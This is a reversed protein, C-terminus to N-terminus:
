RPRNADRQAHRIGNARRDGRLFVFGMYGVVLFSAVTRREIDFEDFVAVPFGDAMVVGCCNDVYVGHMRLCGIARRGYCGGSTLALSM